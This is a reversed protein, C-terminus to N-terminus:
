KHWWKKNTEEYLVYHWVNTARGNPLYQREATINYGDARLEGIRASPRLIRNQYFAYNPVGKSGARYLMKLIRSTQNIESM